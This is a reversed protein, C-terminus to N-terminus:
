EPLGYLREPVLRQMMLKDVALAKIAYAPQATDRRVTRVVPRGSTDTIAAAVPTHATAGRRIVVALEGSALEVFNGPPYIGYEKIIAASAASGHAEHFMQRAAEQIKLAPREARPSIKAMFVDALRLADALEDVQKLDRPYGGGGPREHHQLVGELWASDTVGASRMLDVARQPHARIQDRQAESLRGMAAFRGQLDVIAMNMTLAAKVLSLTRESTWGIRQAMLQGLLAAHLTHSLGYLNMRREDQRVSLYIAIDIDRQVLSMFQTAFAECRAPFGPEQDVSKLLNDLRWNAQEWLDFLTTKLKEPPPTYARGEQVAKFEEVDVYLGRDLLTERQLESRLLYGRALLLKGQADRVNFPLAQGLVLQDSVLQLLEFAM